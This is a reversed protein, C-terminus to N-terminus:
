FYDTAEEKSLYGQLKFTKWVKDWSPTEFSTLSRWGQYIRCNFSAYSTPPDILWKPTEPTINTTIEDVYVLGALYLSVVGKKLDISRVCGYTKFEPHKRYITIDLFGLHKSVVSYINTKKYEKVFETMTMGVCSVFITADGNYKASWGTSTKLDYKSIKAGGGTRKTTNEPLFIVGNNKDGFLDTIIEAVEQRTSLKNPM